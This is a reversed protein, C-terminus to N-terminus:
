YLSTVMVKNVVLLYLNIWGAWTQSWASHETISICFLILHLGTYFVRARPSLCSLKYQLLRTLSWLSSIFFNIPIMLMSWQNLLKFRLFMLASICDGIFRIHLWQPSLGKVTKEAKNIAMIHLYVPVDLIAHTYVLYM